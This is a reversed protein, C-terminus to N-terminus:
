TWLDALRIEPGPFIGPRFSEHEGYTGVLEYGDNALRREELVRTVPDLTWYHPVGAAAYRRLKIGLDRARTSPSLVEVVLDPAGYVRDGIVHQRERSVFLLDPQVVLNAEVDLVVDMPAVLVEGLQRARVFPVIALTLAIVVRQHPVVPSDAVRLEGYALERPAVTEPTRLYEVTTM